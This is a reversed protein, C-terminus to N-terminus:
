SMELLKGCKLPRDSGNVRPLILSLIRVSRTVCVCVRPLNFVAIAALFVACMLKKFSPYIYVCGYICACLYLVGDAVNM